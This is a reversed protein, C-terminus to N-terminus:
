IELRFGQGRLTVLYAREGGAQVIRDRVRRVLADLAEESVGELHADPWVHRVLEERAVVKGARDYLYSLLRFQENSLPPRAEVGKVYVRRTEADVRLPPPESQAEPPAVAPASPAAVGGPEGVDGAAAMAPRRARRRVFFVALAILTIVGLTAPVGLAVALTVNDIGDDGGGSAVPSPEASPTAAGGQVRIALPAATLTGISATATTPRPTFKYPM